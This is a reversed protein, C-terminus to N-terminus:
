GTLRPPPLPLNGPQSLSPLAVHSVRAPASALVLGRGQTRAAATGAAQGPRSGAHGESVGMVAGEVATQQVELAAAAVHQGLVAMAPVEPTCGRGGEGQGECRVGSVVPVKAEEAWLTCTVLLSRPRLPTAQVWSTVTSNPSTATRSSCPLVTM